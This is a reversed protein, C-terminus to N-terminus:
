DKSAAIAKRRMENYTKELNKDFGMKHKNEEYFKNAAATLEAATLENGRETDGQPKPQPNKDLMEILKHVLKTDEATTTWSELVAQEEPTLRNASFGQIREIIQDANAGLAAREAEEDPLAAIQSKLYAGVIADAQEQTINAERMASTVDNLLPDGSDFEVASLAADDSQSFDFNYEEPAVPERERKLRGHEKELEQYVKVIDEPTKDRFKEPMEFSAEGEDGAGMFGAADATAQEGALAKGDTGSAVEGESVDTAEAVSEAADSM